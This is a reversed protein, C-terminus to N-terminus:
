AGHGAETLIRAYLACDAGEPDYARMIGELRFGLLEVWRHGPAFAVHVVAELRRAGRARLRDIRLQVARTAALWGRRPMDRGILAWALWRGGGQDLFGACGVPTGGALATWALGPRALAAAYGPDALLPRLVGQADQLDLRALHAPEYPVIRIEAM